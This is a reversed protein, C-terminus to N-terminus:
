LFFFTKTKLGDFAISPLIAGTKNIPDIASQILQSKESINLTKILFYGLILSQGTKILTILFFIANNAVPVEDNDRQGYSIMGSFCKQNHIWQIHRRIAMEDFCMSIFLEKDNIREENVFKELTILTQECFGANLNSKSNQHWM